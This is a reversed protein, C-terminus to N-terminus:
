LSRITSVRLSISCCFYTDLPIPNTLTNVRFLINFLIDYRHADSGAPPTPQLWGSIPLTTNVLQRTELPVGPALIFDGSLFHRIQASTPTQPTPADPDVTAVVFHRGVELGREDRIAFRPPGVTESSICYSCATKKSEM